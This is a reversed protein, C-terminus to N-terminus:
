EGFSHPFGLYGHCIKGPPTYARADVASRGDAHANGFL